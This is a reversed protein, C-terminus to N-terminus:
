LQSTNSCNADDSHRCDIHIFEFYSKKKKIFCFISILVLELGFFMEHKKEDPQLGSGVNALLSPDAHIFHPHSITVPVKLCPLLDMTGKAPCENPRRCFCTLNNERFDVFKHSFVHLEIGRYSAKRKYNLYLTTCLPGPFIPLPKDVPIFPSFLIGDTGAIHNCPSGNWVDLEPKGDIEIM